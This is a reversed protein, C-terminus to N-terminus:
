TRVRLCHSVTKGFMFITCLVCVCVCICNSSPCHCKGYGSIRKRANWMCPTNWHRNNVNPLFAVPLYTIWNHQLPNEKRFRSCTLLLSPSFLVDSVQLVNVCFQADLSWFWHEVSQTEMNLQRGNRNTIFHIFPHNSRDAFSYLSRPLLLRSISPLHQTCQRQRDETWEKRKEM